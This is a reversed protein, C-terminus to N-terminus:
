SNIWWSFSLPFASSPALFSYPISFMFIDNSNGGGRVAKEPQFKVRWELDVKTDELFCVFLFDM